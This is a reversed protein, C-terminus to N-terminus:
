DGPRARPARRVKTRDGSSGTELVAEPKGILHAIQAQLSAAKAESAGATKPAALGILAGSRGPQLAKETESVTLRDIQSRFSGDSRDLKDLDRFEPDGDFWIQQWWHGSIPEQWSLYGGRLVQRPETIAGTYSYRVSPSAIPDFFRPTYFDSVLIGNSTYGFESAESPDSVEVLYLVRGQDPHISDGAILRDGFPDVLMELLEHSATLSWVDLNRSANVLAFPQGDKDLHVGAAGKLINDGIIIPWTGVPVHELREFPDVTASIEWIPGLDRTAQKQLAASVRMLDGPKIRSSSSVLAVHQILAPM